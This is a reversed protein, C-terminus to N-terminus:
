KLEMLKLGGIRIPPAINLNETEIRTKEVM